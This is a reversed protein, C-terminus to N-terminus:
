FYIFNDRVPVIDEFPFVSLLDLLFTGKFIYYLAIEKADKIEQGDYTLVSTRFALM